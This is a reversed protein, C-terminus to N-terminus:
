GLYFIHVSVFSEEKGFLFMNMSLIHAKEYLAVYFEILKSMHNFLMEFEVGSFHHFPQRGRVREREM